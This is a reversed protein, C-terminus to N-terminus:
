LQIGKHGGDPALVLARNGIAFIPMFISLFLGAKERM